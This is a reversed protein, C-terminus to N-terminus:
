EQPVTISIGRELFVSRQEAVGPTIKSFIVYGGPGQEIDMQIRYLGPRLDDGLPIALFQGTTVFEANTRLVPVPAGTAPRIDYRRDRFTWGLYPGTGTTPPGDIRVRVRTRDKTQHPTYLRLSLIEDESTRKEYDFSLSTSDFRLATRVLVTPSTGESPLYNLFAHGDGPGLVTVRHQGNSLPPLQIESAHGDVLIDRRVQGDVLARLAVPQSAGQPRVYLLTPTLEHQGVPAVFEVVQERGVPIEDFLVPLTQTRRIAAPEAPTLLHRARWNGSPQYDEWQYRGAVVEPDNEPPRPQVAVFLVRNNLLLQEDGVPWLTFWGPQTTSDAFSYFEEPIQIERTLTPPRNAAAVLVLGHLARLRVRAVTRPLSFYYQTPETVPVGEVTTLIRDYLSPVTSSNLTGQQLVINKADLLEYRVSSPSLSVSTEPPPTKGDLSGLPSRLSLRFPTPHQQEHLIEYDVPSEADARYTRAAVPEPTVEQEKGETTLFVRVILSQQPIIEILGGPIFDSLTNGKEDWLLTFTQRLALGRGYWRVEVKRDTTDRPKWPLPDFVFRLHGGGEPIVIVGYSSPSVLLGAPLLPDRIKEEDEIDKFAYLDRRAYNVEPIGEPAITSWRQRLVNRKEADSLLEPPYLNGRALIRQQKVSLRQWVGSLKQVTALEQSYVRAVLDVIPSSATAVRLRLQTAEELLGQLNLVVVKGDAPVLQGYLYFRGTFLEGTQVDIYTTLRTRHVYQQDLLIKGTRSLVQYHLTYSWEETPTATVLSQPVSANTVVRVLPQGPPLTYVLWKTQDLLDVASLTAENVRRLRWDKSSNPSSVSRQWWGERWVVGAILGLILSWRILRIV